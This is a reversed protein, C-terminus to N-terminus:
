KSSVARRLHRPRDAHSPLVGTQDVGLIERARALDRYCVALEMEPAWNLYGRYLPSIDRLMCEIGKDDLMGKWIAGEGENAPLAVVVTDDPKPEAVPPAIIHLVRSVFSM